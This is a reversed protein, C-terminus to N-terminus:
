NRRSPHFWMAKKGNPLSEVITKDDKFEESINQSVLSKMEKKEEFIPLEKIQETVMRISEESANTLDKEKLKRESCLRKYESILMNRKESKLLELEEKLKTVEQLEETMKDLRRENTYINESEKLAYSAQLAMGFSANEDAPVAVLSLEAINIGKAILTGSDEKVLDQAFAGISVNNIRGDRVMEKIKTDMVKAEFEICKAAGNWLSNTIRGKISEVRNDHDVLLPKGMLSPAAKQLEEAIYKHNNHTTTESIAVGKIIFDRDIGEKIESEVFEKIPTSFVLKHWDSSEPAKGGHGKKWQSTAIAYSKKELDDDSMKPNDKKLQAKITKRLKEFEAPM